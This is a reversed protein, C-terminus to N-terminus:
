SLNNCSLPLYKKATNQRHADWILLWRLVRELYKVIEDESLAKDLKAECFEYDMDDFISIYTDAKDGTKIVNVTALLGNQGKYTLELNKTLLEPM